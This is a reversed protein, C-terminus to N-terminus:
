ASRTPSGALLDVHAGDLARTREGVWLLHGSLAYPVGSAADPRTLAREYELLLAEHSAYLEVGHTAPM